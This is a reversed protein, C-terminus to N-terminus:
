AVVNVGDVIHKDNVIKKDGDDKDLNEIIVVDDDGIIENGAFRGLENYRVMMHIYTPEWLGVDHFSNSVGRESISAIYVLFM